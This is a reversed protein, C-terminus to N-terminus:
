RIPHLDATEFTFDGSKLDNCYMDLIMRVVRFSLDIGLLEDPHVLKTELSEYGPAFKGDVLKALFMFYIQDIHPINIARYPRLDTLEACAEERTERAAGEALTEGNELYGAPLTWKGLAPEIARRCLLIKGEWVPITGVVTKPNSYYITDCAECIFRERNDGEPIKYTVRGGCSSCYKM